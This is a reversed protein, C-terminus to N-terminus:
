LLELMYIHLHTLWKWENQIQEIYYNWGVFILWGIQRADFPCYGGPWEVRSNSCFYCFNLQFSTFLENFTLFSYPRSTESKWSTIPWKRQWRWSSNSDIKSHCQTLDLLFSCTQYAFNIVLVTSYYWQIDQYSCLELSILHLVNWKIPFHDKLCRKFVSGTKESDWGCANEVNTYSICGM